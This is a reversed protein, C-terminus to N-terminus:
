KPWTLGRYSSSLRLKHSLQCDDSTAATMVTRLAAANVALQFLSATCCASMGGCLDAV